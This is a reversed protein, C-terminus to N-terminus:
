QSANGTERLVLLLSAISNCATETQGYRYLWRTIGKEEVILISEAGEEETVHYRERLLAKKTWVLPVGKGVVQITRSGEHQIIFTGSGKDFTSDKILFAEEFTGDLVLDEPVGKLLQGNTKLLWLQDATQLALELDHTSLLIAKGTTRALKYLLLMLSIRNPLDLYATPEDLIVLPTDQALARALMVRQREGDSLQHIKRGTFPETRTMTIAQDIIQRDTESLRGMWGTHPYRGLGIVTYVDLNGAQVKETLVMSLKKAMEVPKMAAINKGEMEVQGDVPKQLGALTRILTSKGSGNPGLLCILQGPYMELQLSSALSRVQRKGTKYGISLNRTQLLPSPHASM